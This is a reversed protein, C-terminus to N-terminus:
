LTMPFVGFYPYTLLFSPRLYWVGLAFLSGLLSPLVTSDKWIGSLSQKGSAIAMFPLFSTEDFYRKPKYERHRVDQHYLSALTFVPLVGWFMLDASNSAGITKGITLLIASWGLPHRTARALGYCVDKEETVFHQKIFSSPPPNSFANFVGLVGTYTLATSLIDRWLAIPAFPAVNLSLQLYEGILPIFTAFSIVSYAFLFLNTGMSTILHKRIPSHSLGMHTATFAAWALSISTVSMNNYYKHQVPCKELLLCKCVFTQALRKEPSSCMGLVSRIRVVFATPSKMSSM